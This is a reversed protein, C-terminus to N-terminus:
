LSTIQEPSSQAASSHKMSSRVTINLARDCRMVTIFASARVRECVCVCEASLATDTLETAM